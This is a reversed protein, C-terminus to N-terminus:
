HSVLLLRKSTHALEVLAGCLSDMGGSFLLIEDSGFRKGQPTGLELYNGLEPPQDHQAFEFSFDDESMFGLAESLAELVEPKMWVDPRRVPVMFHFRRRWQRGLAPMTPGGGPVMADAAFVYAAIEVLDTLLPPVDAVMRRTIDQLRLQVNQRPGDLQVRMNRAGSGARRLDRANGCLVQSEPLLTAGGSSNLYSRACHWSPSGGRRRPRSAGKSS